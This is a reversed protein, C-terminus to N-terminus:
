DEEREPPEESFYVQHLAKDPIEGFAEQFASWINYFEQPDKGMAKLMEEVEEGVLLMDIEEVRTQIMEISKFARIATKPDMFCRRTFNLWRKM